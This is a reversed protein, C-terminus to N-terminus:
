AVPTLLIPRCGMKELRPRFYHDSVCCLVMADTKGSERPEAEPLSFDMLRNHGTAEIM